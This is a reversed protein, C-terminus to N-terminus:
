KKGDECSAKSEEYLLLSQSWNSGHRRGKGGIIYKGELDLVLSLAKPFYELKLIGTRM